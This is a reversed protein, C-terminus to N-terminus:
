VGYGLGSVRFGLFVLSGHTGRLFGPSARGPGGHFLVLSSLGALELRPVRLSEPKQTDEIYM